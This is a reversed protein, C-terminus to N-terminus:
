AAGGKRSENQAELAAAIREAAAALHELAIRTKAAHEREEITWM